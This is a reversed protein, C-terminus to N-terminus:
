GLLHTVISTTVFNSLMFMCTATLSRISFRSNGCIGHGSTCGNSLKQIM